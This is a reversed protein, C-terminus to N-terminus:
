NSKIVKKNLRYKGDESVITVFYIGNQLKSLNITTENTTTELKNFVLKGFIDYIFINYNSFQKNSIVLNDKFPNPYIYFYENTELKQISTEGLAGITHFTTNTIVEPNNDFYIYATNNIITGLPLNENLNVRYKVFGHSGIENIISDPLMINNFIFSIEGNQNVDISMEHSSSLPILSEWKLSPDLQDKIVISFATDNGTNQFRILYDIHTTSYHITHSTDVGIPQGTKDNPDYGCVLVQNLNSNEIHEVQGLNNLIHVDLESHLTDGISNFDPMLVQFNILTDTFYSLSDLTWYLNQGVISDPFTNSSYFDIDPDLNLHIIGSPVTTGLNNINIWYSVVTNCRPFGGILNTELSLVETTPFYGFDLSDFYIQNSNFQIHYESSDTTLSWNDIYNPSIIYQSNTTDDFYLNYKGMNDTFGFSNQPTSSITTLDIGQENTDKIGNQNNDIFVQGRAQFPYYLLNEFYSIQDRQNSTTLFDIDGDNDLDEPHISSIDNLSYLGGNFVCTEYFSEPTNFTGNGNNKILYQHQSTLYTTFIIDNFGDSNFDSSIVDIVDINSDYFIVQITSFTNNGLNEFWSVRDDISSACLIDKLGDNNLDVLEISKPGNSQTSIVVQPNFNGNGINEYWAIKDDLLSASFIDLDGDSDIDLIELDLTYNVADSILVETSFIGNGLNKHWSIKNDSDAYIAVIDKNGDNDIDAVSVKIIGIATNTIINQPGFNGNGLYSYWAIKNDIVSASIIDLIGDNNLDGYALSITGETQDTIIIPEQFKLNGLNKYWMVNNESGEKGIIIDKLNNNDLDATIVINTGTRKTIILSDTDFSSNGLNRLWVLRNDLTSATIIDMDGDNDMDDSNIPFPQNVTSSIIQQNSFSGSNLNKYWVVLNAQNITLCIDVLGDNDIDSLHVQFNNAIQDDIIVPNGYSGGGLNEIWSLEGYRSILIDNDGDNDIDILEITKFWNIDTVIHQITFTGNFNEIWTIVGDDQLFSLIDLDGDNDMDQTLIGISNTMPITFPVSITQLFSFHTNGTNKLITIENLNSILIDKNGDGDIDNILINGFNTLETYIKKEHQFEGNGMNEFWSIRILSADYCNLTTLIDLDGDNDIDSVIMNDLSNNSSIIKQESYIGNGLNSYWSILNDGNSNLLVDNKGDGNIDVIFIDEPSDYYSSSIIKKDAFQGSVQSSLFFVSLILFTKKM